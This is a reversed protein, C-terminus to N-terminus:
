ATSLARDRVFLTEMSYDKRPGKVNWAASWLPWDAFDYSVAYTDPDCHHLDECRDQALGIRHFPRGDEFRVEIGRPGPRWLYRRTGLIPAQGPIHLTLQEDYVLGEDCRSLDLCGEAESTQGLLRDLIKRRFRWTGEFDFLSVPLDPEPRQVLRITM